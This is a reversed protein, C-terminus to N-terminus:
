FGRWIEDESLDVNADDRLKAIRKHKKIEVQQSFSKQHEEDFQYFFKDYPSVYAKDIDSSM